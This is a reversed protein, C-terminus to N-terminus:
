FAGTAFTDRDRLRKASPFKLLHLPTSIEIFFVRSANMANMEIHWAKLPLRVCSKRSGKKEHILTGRAGSYEM